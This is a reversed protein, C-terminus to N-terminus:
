KRIYCLGVAGPGTHTGLVAGTVGIEIPVDPLEKQLRDLLKLWEHAHLDRFFNHTNKSVPDGVFAHFDRLVYLGAGEAAAVHDLAKTPDKVDGGKHTGSLAVFGRTISGSFHASVLKDGVKAPRSAVFDLSYDCM